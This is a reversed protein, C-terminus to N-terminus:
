AGARLAVVGDPLLDAVVVGDVLSVSAPFLPRNVHNHGLVTEIAEPLLGTFHVLSHVTTEIHGREDALAALTLHVLRAVPNTPDATFVTAVVVPHPNM